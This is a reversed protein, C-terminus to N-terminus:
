KQHNDGWNEFNEVIEFYSIATQYDHEIQMNQRFGTPEIKLVASTVVHCRGRIGSLNIKQSFQIALHEENLAVLWGSYQNPYGFFPDARSLCWSLFRLPNGDPSVTIQPHWNIEIM